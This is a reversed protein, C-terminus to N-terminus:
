SVDRPRLHDRILRADEPYTLGFWPARTRLVRFRHGRGIADRVPDPLGFEARDLPDRKSWAELLIRTFAPRFVWLNMSVPAEAKFIGGRLDRIATWADANLGMAEHLDALYGDLVTCVARNVPGNPSLTAGLDFAVLASEDTAGERAHAVAAHLASTGYLDDGNVVVATGRMGEMGIMTAHATGLAEEQIRVRVRPDTRSFEEFRGALDANTVVIAEECGAGFADRLTLDLITEGNPGVPEMQKPRGFRTSRGAALAILSVTPPMAAM